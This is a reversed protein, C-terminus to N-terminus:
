IINIGACAPINKIQEDYSFLKIHFVHTKFSTLSFNKLKKSLLSCKLICLKGSTGCISLLRSKIFEPIAGRFGYKVPCSVGGHLLTVVQWFHM